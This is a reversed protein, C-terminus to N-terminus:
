MTVPQPWVMSLVITELEAFLGLAAARGAHPMSVTQQYSSGFPTFCQTIDTQLRLEKKATVAPAAPIKLRGGLQQM